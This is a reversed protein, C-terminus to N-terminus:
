LCPQRHYPQCVHHCSNRMVLFDTVLLTGGVGPSFENEESGDGIEGSGGEGEEGDDEEYAGEGDEESDDEEDNGSQSANSAEEM